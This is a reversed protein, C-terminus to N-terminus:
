QISRLVFYFVIFQAPYLLYFWYKFRTPGSKGNYFYVPILALLGLIESFYFITDNNWSWSEAALLAPVSFFVLLIATQSVFLARFDGSFVYFAIIMLVGPGGYDVMSLEALQFFLLTILAAQWPKGYRRILGIACLGLFLTFVANLMLEAGALEHTFVYPYESVFALAFLRWLYKKFNGTKRAGNTILWAFLPYSIRGVFRLWLIQPFFFYGIHDIIMTAAALVKIWFSNM